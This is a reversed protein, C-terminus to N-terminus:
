EVYEVKIDRTAGSKNTIVITKTGETGPTVKSYTTAPDPSQIDFGSGAETQAAILEVGDLGFNSTGTGNNTKTCKVRYYPYLTSNLFTYVKATYITWSAEGTVTKLVDYTVGDLSGEITFNEPSQTNVATGRPLLAVKNIAKGQPFQYGIWEPDGVTASANSAWDSTNNATGLVDDFAKWSPQPGYDGGSFVTGSPDTTSTMTPVADTTSTNTDGDAIILQEAFSVSTVGLASISITGNDLIDTHISELLTGSGGGGGSSASSGFVSNGTNLSFVSVAM